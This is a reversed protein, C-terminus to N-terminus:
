TLADVQERYIRQQKAMDLHIKYKINLLTKLRTDDTNFKNSGLDLELFADNNSDPINNNLAKAISEGNRAYISMLAAGKTGMLDVSEKPIRIKIDDNMLSILKLLRSNKAQSGAIMLQDVPGLKRFEDILLKSQFALFELCALYRRVLDDYSSDSTEGIFMGRMEPDGFPTRNGDLDGYYFIHRINWHYSKNNESEWSTIYAEIGLIEEELPRKSAKHLNFLHQLLKGSCSSGAEYVPHAEDIIGTFPGWIGKISQPVTTCDITTDKMYLYCTSTGAVIFLTNKKSYPFTAFWSSYCDICSATMIDGEIYPIDEMQLGIQINSQLKLVNKYFKNSWGFAEGDNAIGNSNPNNIFGNYKYGYVTMLKYSIYRHLDLVVYEKHDYAVHNIFKLLKPAAMEPIFQGGLTELIQAECFGNLYQTEKTASNDMWFIVYGNNEEGSHLRSCTDHEVIALSCTASVGCSFVNYSFVDLEQFCKEIARLIEDLNQTYKWDADKLCNQHYGVTASTTAIKTADMSDYLGVRVSSSGLDIGLSVPQNYYSVSSANISKGNTLLSM